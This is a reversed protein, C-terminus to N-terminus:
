NICSGNSEYGSPCSTTEHDIIEQKCAAYEEETLQTTRQIGLFTNYYIGSIGISTNPFYYVIAGARNVLDYEADYFASGDPLYLQEYDDVKIELNYTGVLGLENDSWAPCSGLASVMCQAIAQPHNQSKKPPNLGKVKAYCGVQYDGINTGDDIVIEGSEIAEDLASQIDLFPIKISCAGQDCDNSKLTAEAEVTGYVIPSEEEDPNTKQVVCNVEAAYKSAPKKGEEEPIVSWSLFFKEDEDPRYICSSFEFDEPESLLELPDIPEAIVPTFTFIVATALFIKKIDM